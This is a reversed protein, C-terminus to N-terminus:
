KKLENIEVQPLLVKNCEEVISEKALNCSATQKINASSAGIKVEYRGAEAIWCTSNIDFSALDKASITFRITQKQGPQLLNTKAFGKLEEQPTIMKAAPATFYLQVVEKGATKGPNAIDITATINGKFDPSSLKLNSYAFNTYRM